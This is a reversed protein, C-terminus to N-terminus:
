TALPVENFRLKLWKLRSENAWKGSTVKKYQFLPKNM